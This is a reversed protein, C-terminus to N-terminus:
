HDHPQENDHEQHRENRGSGDVDEGQGAYTVRSRAHLPDQRRVVPDLARQRRRALEARRHDIDLVLVEIRVDEDVHEVPGAAGGQGRHLRALVRAPARDGLLEGLLEVPRSRPDAPRQPLDPEADLERQAVGLLPDKLHIQVGDVVAVPVPSVHGRRSSIEALGRSRQVPGL